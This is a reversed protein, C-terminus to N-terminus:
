TRRLEEDMADHFGALESGHERACAECCLVGECIALGEEFEGGCLECTGADDGDDRAGCLSLNCTSPTFDTVPPV